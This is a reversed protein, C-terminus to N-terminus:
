CYLTHLSTLTDLQHHHIATPPANSLCYLTPLSSSPPTYHHHHIATPPTSLFHYNLVLLLLHALPHVLLLTTVLLKLFPPIPLSFLFLPPLLSPHPTLVSLNPLTTLSHPLSHPLSHTSCGPLTPTYLCLFGGMGQFVVDMWTGELVM